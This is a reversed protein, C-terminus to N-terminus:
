KDYKEKLGIEQAELREEANGIAIDLAERIWRAAPVGTQASLEKMREWQPPDVYVTVSRKREEQMFVEDM